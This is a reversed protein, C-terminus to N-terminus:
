SQIPKAGSNAQLLFSHQEVFSLLITSTGNATLNLTRVITRPTAIRRTLDQPILVLTSANSGNKPFISASQLGIIRDRLPIKAEESDQESLARGSLCIILWHDCELRLWSSARTWTVDKAGDPGCGMNWELRVGGVKKCYEERSNAM